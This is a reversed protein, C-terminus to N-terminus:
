FVVTLNSNNTIHINLEKQLIEEINDFDWYPIRILKINNNKCYQNKLEDHIQITEFEAQTMWGEIWEFHQRGDYEILMRLQIQDKDWFISVDFKLLGGGVGVLNDFTYQSDHSINHKTLIINLQKEGKSKNCKPCGSGNIRTRITLHTNWEFGCEKCIWWIYANSSPLYEEPNKDNKEYDWEECIEPHCVLLNYEETPLKGSCYPCDTGNNRSGIQAYWEHGKDCEWWAYQSSGYAFDYPTFDGNLTPHWQKALEPNRTALCNNIGVRVGSCYPCGCKKHLIDSLNMDFTEYCDEKLCKWLLKERNDIYKESLLEFNKNNIKLWLKINNITSKNSSHFKQPLHSDELDNLYSQYYFGEKDCLTIKNKKHLYVEDVLNFGDFNLKLFLKINNLTYQNDVDFRYPIHNNLLNGLLATYLYGDKDKLILNTDCDIYKDSVLEFNPIYKSIWLKINHLTYINNKDFKRPNRIKGTFYVFPAYYLYGENDRLTLKTSNNVYEESVLEFGKDGVIIRVEDLTYKKNNKGM